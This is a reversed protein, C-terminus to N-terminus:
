VYRNRVDRRVNELRAYADQEQKATMTEDVGLKTEAVREWDTEAVNYYVTYINYYFFRADDVIIAYRDHSRPCAGGRRKYSRIFVVLQSM